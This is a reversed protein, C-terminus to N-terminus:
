SKPLIYGEKDDYEYTGVHRDDSYVEVQGGDDTTDFEKYIESVKNLYDNLSGKIVYGANKM